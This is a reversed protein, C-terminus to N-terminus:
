HRLHAKVWSASLSSQYSRGGSSTNDKEKKGEGERRERGGM